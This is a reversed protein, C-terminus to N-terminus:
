DRMYGRAIRQPVSMDAIGPHLSRISTKDNENIGREYIYLFAMSHSRLVPNICTAKLRTVVQLNTIHNPVDMDCKKGDQQEPDPSPAPVPIPMEGTPKRTALPSSIENMGESLFDPSEDRKSLIGSRKSLSSRHVM